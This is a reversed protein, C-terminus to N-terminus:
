SLHFRPDTALVALQEDTFPLEALPTLGSRPDVLAQAVYVVTGDAHRYGAWRTFASGDGGTALGVTNGSVTVEECGAAKDWLVDAFACGEGTLTSDGPTVVMAFVRGTGGDKAVPIDAYYEWVQQGNPDGNVYERFQAQSSRLEFGEPATLDPPTDYGDPVIDEVQQELSLGQDFRPGSYATRDTQGNPWPTKTDSPGGGTSTVSPGTSTSTSTPVPPNGGPNVADGERGPIVVATVAIAAVAVASAAGAWAARRHKQATKAAELVPVESMPPPADTAAMADRLARRLDHETM